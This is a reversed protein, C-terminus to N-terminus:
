REDAERTLLINLCTAYLKSFVHMVSLGRFNNPDSVSGKKHLSTIALTNFDAPMGKRVVCNFFYAIVEAFENSCSLAKLVEASINCRGLAKNNKLM